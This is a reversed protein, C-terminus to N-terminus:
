SKSSISSEKPNIESLVRDKEPVYKKMFGRLNSFAGSLINIERGTPYSRHFFTRFIQMVRDGNVDPLFECMSLVNAMHEYFRELDETKAPQELINDAQAKPLLLPDGFIKYLEHAVLLVAQALNLSTCAEDTLIRVSGMCHSLDEKTLGWEERGFVLSISGQPLMKTILDMAEALTYNPEHYEGRRNATGLVLVSGKTAEPITEVIEANQLIESSHMAMKIADEEDVSCGPRVLRLDHIGFNNIARSVAGLNLAGQPEVLIIRIKDLLNERSTM